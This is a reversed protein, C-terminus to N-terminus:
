TMTHTFFTWLCLCFHLGLSTDAFLTQPDHVQAEGQASHPEKGKESGEQAGGGGIPTAADNAADSIVTVM